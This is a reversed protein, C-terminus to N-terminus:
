LRSCSINQAIIYCSSVLSDKGTPRGFRVLSYIETDILFM